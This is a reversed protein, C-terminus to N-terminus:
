DNREVTQIGNARLRLVLAREAFFDVWPPSDQMTEAEVERDDLGAEPLFTIKWKAM